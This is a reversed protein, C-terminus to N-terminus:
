LFTLLYIYFPHPLDSWGKCAGGDGFLKTLFHRVGEDIRLLEDENAIQSITIPVGRDKDSFLVYHPYGDTDVGSQHARFLRTEM